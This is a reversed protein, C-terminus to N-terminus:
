LLGPKKLNGTPWPSWILAAIKRAKLEERGKQPMGFLEKWLMECGRPKQKETVAENESENESESQDDM